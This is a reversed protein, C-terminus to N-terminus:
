KQLGLNKMLWKYIEQTKNYISEAIDKASIDVGKKYDPYRAIIYYKDIRIIGELIDEPPQLELIECLRELKHIHPPIENKKQVYGAKLCKELAQQCIFACWTYHNTELMVKASMMDEDAKKLWEEM